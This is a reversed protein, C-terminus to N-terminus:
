THSFFLTRMGPQWEVLKGQEKLVEHTPLKAAGGASAAKAVEIMSKIPVVWMPFSLGAKIEAKSLVGDRNVDLEDFASTTSRASHQMTSSGTPCRRHQSSPSCTGPVLLQYLGGVEGVKLLTVSIMVTIRVLHM